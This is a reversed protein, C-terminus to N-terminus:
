IERAGRPRRRIHSQHGGPACSLSGSSERAGPFSATAGAYFLHSRSCRVLVTIRVSQGGSEGEDDGDADGEGDGDRDTLATRAERGSRTEGNMKRSKNHVGRDATPEGRLYDDARRQTTPANTRRTTREANGRGNRSAIRKRSINRVSDIRVPQSETDTTTRLGLAYPM